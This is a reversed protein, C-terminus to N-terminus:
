LRALTDSVTHYSGAVRGACVRRSSWRAARRTMLFAIPPDGYGKRIRTQGCCRAVFRRFDAARM